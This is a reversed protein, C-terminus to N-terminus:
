FTTKTINLDKHIYIYNIIFFREKNFIKKFSKFNQGPEAPYFFSTAKIRKAELIFFSLQRSM